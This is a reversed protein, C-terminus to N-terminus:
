NKLNRKCTYNINKIRALRQIKFRNDCKNIKKINLKLIKYEKRQGVKNKLHLTLYYTPSSQCENEFYIKVTMIHACM